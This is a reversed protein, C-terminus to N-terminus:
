NNTKKTPNFQLHPYKEAYWKKFREEDKLIHKLATNDKINQPLRLEDFCYEIIIIWLQTHSLNHPNGKPFMLAFVKSTNSVQPKWERVMTRPYGVGRGIYEGTIYDLEGDIMADAIEGM